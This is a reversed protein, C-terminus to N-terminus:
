RRFLHALNEEVMIGAEISAVDANLHALVIPHDAPLNLSEMLDKVTAVTERSGTTRSRTIREKAESYLMGAVAMGAASNEPTRSLQATVAAGALDLANFSQVPVLGSM